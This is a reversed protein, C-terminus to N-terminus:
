MCKSMCMNPPLMWLSAVALTCRMNNTRGLDPSNVHGPSSCVFHDVFVRQGPHLINTKLLHPFSSFTSTNHIQPYCMQTKTKWIPMFCMKSPCVQGCAVQSPANGLHGGRLLHQTALMDRHGLRFHWCLLEKQPVTLNQNAKDTVCLNYEFNNKALSLPRAASTIPLNNAANYPIRLTTRHPLTLQIGASTQISSCLSDLCALESLYSQTSLLRTHSAPVLLASTRITYPQRNHDLVVWEVTGVGSVTANGFGLVKSNSPVPHPGDVFDRVDPTISRSCGTDWVFTFVNEPPLHNFTDTTFARSIPAGAPFAHHFLRSSTTTFTNTITPPPQPCRLSPTPHHFSRRHPPKVTPNLSQKNQRRKYELFSMTKFYTGPVHPHKPKSPKLVKNHTSAGSPCVPVSKHPTKGGGGTLAM